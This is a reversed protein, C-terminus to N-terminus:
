AAGHRRLNDKAEENGPDSVVADIWADLAREPRALNEAYVTGLAIRARARERGALYDCALEVRGALLEHMGARELLADLGLPASDDVSDLPDITGLVSRLDIEADLRADFAAGLATAIDDERLAQRLRRFHVARGGAGLVRGQERRAEDSAGRRGRQELAAALKEVAPAHGPAAEFARILNEFAAARDGLAERRESALLYADSARERSVTESSWSSISALLESPVPDAPHATLAQELAELAAHSEGGRAQLVAVRVLLTAREAGQRQAAMPLLTAAALAPEGLTAFWGALEERLAPDDGLLLARRSLKTALELETGRTALAHALAVAATRETDGDGSASATVLRARLAALEARPGTRRPVPSDLEYRELALSAASRPGEHDVWEPPPLTRKAVPAAVHAGSSEGASDGDHVSPPPSM